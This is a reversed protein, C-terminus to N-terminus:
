KCMLVKIILDSFVLYCKIYIALTLNTQSNLVAPKKQANQLFSLLIKGAFRLKKFIRFGFKAGFSLGGSRNILHSALLISLNKMLRAFKGSFFGFKPPPVAIYRFRYTTHLLLTISLCLARYYLTM